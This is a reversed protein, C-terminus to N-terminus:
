VTNLPSTYLRTRTIIEADESFIFVQRGYLDLIHGLDSSEIIPYWADRRLLPYGRRDDRVRAMWRNRAVPM